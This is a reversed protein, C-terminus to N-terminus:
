RLSYAMFLVSQALMFTSVIYANASNLYNGEGNAINGNSSSLCLRVTVFAQQQVNVMQLQPQAIIKKTILMTCQSPQEHPCFEPALSNLDAISM